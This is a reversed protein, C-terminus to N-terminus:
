NRKGGKQNFFDKPLHLFTCTMGKDCKNGYKCQRLPRSLVDGQPSNDKSQHRMNQRTDRQNSQKHFFNCRKDKYYKCSPCNRCADLQQHRTEKQQVSNTQNHIKKIHQKRPQVTKWPQQNHGFNCRNEKLYKCKPGNTCKEIEQVDELETNKAKTQQPRHKQLLHELYDDNTGFSLNCNKCVHNFTIVDLESQHKAKHESFTKKDKFVEACMLCKYKKNNEILIMDHRTEMHQKM